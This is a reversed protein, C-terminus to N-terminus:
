KRGSMRPAIAWRPTAGAGDGDGASVRAGPLAPLGRRAAAPPPMPAERPRAGEAGSVAAGAVLLPAPSSDGTGIPDEGGKTRRVETSLTPLAVLVLATGAAPAPAPAPIAPRCDDTLVSSTFAIIPSAL